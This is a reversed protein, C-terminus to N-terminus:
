CSTGEELSGAFGMLVLLIMVALLGGAVMLLIILEVDGRDGKM